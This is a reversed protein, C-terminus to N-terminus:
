SARLGTLFNYSKRLQDPAEHSHRSLEVHVGGKYGIDRLTKLVPPFDITGEGFPLHEHIGRLMDEIHINRIRDGWERLVDPISADEVCHVHGIDITLGFGPGDCSNLLEAFDDMREVFMGPEPEFALPVRRREAHLMVKRCGAALKLMADDRPLKETLIGSWFSVADSGLEAAIDVCRCLFDIRVDREAQTPSVLTPEHKRRPNLLFRAGTEIVSALHLQELKKRLRTAEYAWSNSFPNIWQHDITIAVSQYGIEAMLELAQDWRHHALGNTNYGLKMM